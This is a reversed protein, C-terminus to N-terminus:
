ELFREVTFVGDVRKLKEVLRQLHEINRVYVIVTGEFIGDKANLTISRINTDSKSIVSTISNTMGLKDEGFIRLGTIFENSSTQKWDVDVVKESKVVSENTINRCSKRHIRVEGAATVLGIVDDGPVPNCCKAYSYAIGTQGAIIVASGSQDAEVSRSQRATKLFADLSEEKTKVIEPKPEQKARDDFKEILQEADVQDNAIARYVDAPTNLGFFKGLKAIDGETFMRKTRSVVKNWIGRGEEIQRRRDENVFQKIKLKAKHTVVFKEWDPKPTQNKSTIIEVQDGSKLKTNLAVIKGGVKAGICHSGVETHIEFAFDVTTANKPLVKMDGKPTFVYIEDQYLNMKFGEMFSTASDANEILERAWKIISEFAEDNASVKEKYKWHAAIGYEAFEHMKKTRIQVEVMQGGTGVVTTHLSQYGNHKPVSIYDKFREPIPPSLQTIYGYASFCDSSNETDLIVRIANLDYMEELSKGHQRIKTYISYLHKPRGTLEFKFGRKKLEREIPKMFRELYAERETRKLNIKAVLEDHAERDIYKFALDELEWKIKGLGFRHAFPAYIDRTELAIKLQRQPPLADLTRMNHLRDSFKVLMVRVDNTMSLLMKRFSEAEKIERNKFIDSIKTLGAVINAVEDGFESTVDEITYDTDEVVDHLLAAAVSVDDLPIETLLIKAVEVPHYFYPEGSARRENAHARYCLFFARRILTEDYRHLNKKCLELLESLKRYHKDEIQVLSM